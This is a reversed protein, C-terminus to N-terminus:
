RRYDQRAITRRPVMRGTGGTSGDARTEPRTEPRTGPRTEPGTQGRGTGPADPLAGRDAPPQRRLREHRPAPALAADDLYLWAGAGIYFMVLIVVAGWVHVSALVFVLGAAAIVYGKRYSTAAEDLPGRAMIRVAHWALGAWLIALAPLGYRVATVMWFNDISATRWWPGDWGNLGSGFIPHLMVSRAGYVLIEMRGWGSQQNFALNEVIFAYLGGPYSMQGIAFLSGATVVLVYWKTVFFRFLREWAILLLQGLQALNPGTSLSMFTMAVALLTRRTRLGAREYFVYFFNSVMLSCFVGFLIPHPFVSTVRRLGLRYGGLGGGSAGPLGFVMAPISKRLLLEVLAFPLLAVLIWFLVVFTLRYSAADRVLVRGLMYAGLLTVTQNLIFVLRAGGHNYYIALGLWLIYLVMFLDLAIVRPAHQLWYLFVPIVFVILVLTNPTLQLGGVSFGLPLVLTVLFLGLLLHPPLFLIRAWPEAVTPRRGPRRV